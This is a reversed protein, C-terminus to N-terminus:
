AWTGILKASDEAAYDEKLSRQCDELSAGALFREHIATM